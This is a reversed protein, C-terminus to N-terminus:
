TRTAARDAIVREAGEHVLAAFTTQEREAIENLAAITEETFNIPRKPGIRASM